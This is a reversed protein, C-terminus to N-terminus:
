TLGISIAHVTVGVIAGVVTGNIRIFQLDRGALLEISRATEKGDWRAVTTQVLLTFEDAYHEVAYSAARRLAERLREQLEPTDLVHTAYSSVRKALVRVADSNPDAVSERLAATAGEIVDCLWREVAPDRLVRLAEENIQAGLESDQQLDAAVALLLRDLQGRAEHEPDNLVAALYDVVGDFAVGVRRETVFLWMFFTARRDIHEKLQPVLEHRHSILWEHLQRLLLNTIARHAEDEVTTQLLRGILPAYLRRTADVRAAALLVQSLEQPDVLDLLAEAADAVERVLHQAHDPAALWRATKGVVDSEDLRTTVAESTLFAQTVYGGLREALEDKREPILATHPIPLGLPRRFLATVAFWDAVGGALAAESGARLFGNSVYLSAVFLGAALVLFSAAALKM